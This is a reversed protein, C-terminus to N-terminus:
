DNLKKLFFFFLSFSQEFLQVVFLQDWFMNLFPFTFNAFFERRMRWTEKEAKLIFFIKPFCMGFKNETYSNSFHKEFKKPM